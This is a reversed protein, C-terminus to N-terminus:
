SLLRRAKESIDMNFLNNINFEQSFTRNIMDVATKDSQRKLLSEHSNHFVHDIRVSPLDVVKNAYAYIRYTMVDAGHNGFTQDMIFGLKKAAVKSVIPFAAYDKSIRDISNDYTKGYVVEGFKSLATYANIDWSKDVFLCDDNLIFIYKGNILDIMSNMRNHLNSDRKRIDLRIEPLPSFKSIYNDLQPDDEDLGVIIENDLCCTNKISDYLSELM